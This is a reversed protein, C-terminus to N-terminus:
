RHMYGMAAEMPSLTRTVVVLREGKYLRAIVLVIGSTSTGAYVSVARNRARRWDYSRALAQVDASAACPEELIDVREGHRLLTGCTICLGNNPGVCRSCYSHGCWRCAVQHHTCFTSECIACPESCITCVPENGIACVGAHHHCLVHGCAAIVESHEQCYLKGCVSCRRGCSACTPAGCTACPSTDSTVAGCTPCTVVCNRCVAAGDLDRVYFGPGVVNGCERCTVLCNNCFRQGSITCTGMRASYQNCGPCRVACAACVLRTGGDDNLVADARLHSRCQRVGCAACEAQCAHCVADGCVPCRSQHEPCARGGCAWCASGCQDCHEQGCVPCPEVGCAACLVDGCSACQRLCDDCAVHGNRCLIVDETERGCAHCTPRTLAGSYRDLRVRLRADRAGDTLTMEAVATPLYLIAYGCLEVHVHLRHNEIEEARKRDLDAELALRKDGNPDSDDRMEEIQQGYYTTLRNLAKYLRPLIEAEHTACRLDAHYVAFKRATEAMRVLQTMPPLRPGAPAEPFPAAEPPAARSADGSFEVAETAAESSAAESSAADGTAGDSAANGARSPAPPPAPMPESDALLQEFSLAAAPAPQAFAIQAGEDDLVVTYLEERKDDARYTIRWHFAYRPEPQERLRLNTIGANRPRVAQMLGESGPHRVPLRRVTLASRREIYSLMRDFTRSGHAVLQQGSGPEVSQFALLLEDGGFHESLPEPLRVRLSALKGNDLPEVEAGFLRFFDLTFARLDPPALADPDPTAVATRAKRSRRAQQTRLPNRM